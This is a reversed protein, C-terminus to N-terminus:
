DAVAQEWLTRVVNFVKRKSLIRPGIRAIRVPGRTASTLFIEDANELDALVLSQAGCRIGNQGALDIVAQRSIGPLCGSELSPTLLRDGNVLFVNATAAECLEGKTNLFITEAFGRRRAEDLALLNEAYSACKLGALPSLENRRWPSIEAAIETPSEALPQAMMWVLRDDGQSVDDLSGSGGTVAVRIRASRNQLNNRNLLETMAERLGTPVPKWRLRDCGTQLRALHQDVFKVKGDTALVTEFLGLGHLFGRDTESVPLVGDEIWKENAWFVAM